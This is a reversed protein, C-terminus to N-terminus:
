RLKRGLDRVVFLRLACGMVSQYKKGQTRALLKFYRITEANLSLTLTVTADSALDSLRKDLATEQQVDPSWLERYRYVTARSKGILEGIKTALELAPLPLLGEARLKALAKTVESGTDTSM